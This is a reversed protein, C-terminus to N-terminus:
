AALLRLSPCYSSHSEGLRAGAPIEGDRVYKGLAVLLKRALAVIGRKKNRRTGDDFRRRYWKALESQPQYFLWGWAIEIMLSRLEARGSKSIGQEKEEEGSRFPTPTLGALAALQRRNDIDRWAFVEASLTCSSVVGIGSLQSLHYATSAIRDVYSPKLM